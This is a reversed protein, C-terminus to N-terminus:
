IDAMAAGHHIKGGYDAITAGCFPRYPPIKASSLVGEWYNGVREIVSESGNEDKDMIFFVCVIDWVRSVGFYGFVYFV